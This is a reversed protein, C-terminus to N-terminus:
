EDLVEQQELDEVADVSYTGDQNEYAVNFWGHDPCAMVYIDVTTGTPPLESIITMTTDCVPCQIDTM